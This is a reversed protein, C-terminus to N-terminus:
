YRPLAVMPEKAYKSLCAAVVYADEVAMVAGQGLFPL